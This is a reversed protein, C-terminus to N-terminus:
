LRTWRNGAIGEGDVAVDAVVGTTAPPKATEGVAVPERTNRNSETPFRGDNNVQQPQQPQERPLYRSWADEFDAREYGRFTERDVTAEM